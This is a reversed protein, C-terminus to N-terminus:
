LGTAAANPDLHTRFWSLAAGSSEEFHVKYADFHGGPLLVLEKPALAREFAALQIDAPIVTEGTGVIMLLPKPSVRAIWVGPEYLRAARSSRSTVTNNERGPPVLDRYFRLADPSTYLAPDAPDDGISTQYRLEGGAAQAREDDAQALEFAAIREPPVRRQWQEFGSITPVQSVVCTIRVDTAGLVIAHGGAFSTGWVGIRDADVEPRAELFSIARRWDAIQRWPDVDNRPVGDSAGFTRHDHVLVVFGADAFKRAYPDLGMERNGGFGHAMTIAPRPGAAEPLYLWGRLTVGGDATFEVDIRETMTM